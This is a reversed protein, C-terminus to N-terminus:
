LSIVGYAMLIFITGLFGNFLLSLNKSQEADKLEMRAERLRHLAEDRSKLARELEKEIQQCYAMQERKTFETIEMVERM